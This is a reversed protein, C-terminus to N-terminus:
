FALGLTRARLAVRVGRIPTTSRHASSRELKRGRLALRSAHTSVLRVASFLLLTSDFLGRSGVCMWEHYNNKHNANGDKEM